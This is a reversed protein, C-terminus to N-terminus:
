LDQVADASATVVTGDSKLVRVFVVDMRENASNYPFALQGWTQVGADSQVKVRLYRDRRGTGDNEFRWTTNSQEVIFAQEADDTTPSQPSPPAQGSLVPRTLIFAWAALALSRRFLTMNTRDPRRALM